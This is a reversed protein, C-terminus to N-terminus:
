SMREKERPHSDRNSSGYNTFWGKRHPYSAAHQPRMECYSRYNSLQCHPWIHKTVGFVSEKAADCKAKEEPTPSLFEYFDVIEKHLQLM